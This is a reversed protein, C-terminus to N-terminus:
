KITIPIIIFSLIFILGAIVALLKRGIGLQENEDLVPPHKLGIFWGIIVWVIWYPWLLTLLVIFGFFIKYIIKAKNGFLAYIIHGGDLQGMPFLNLSTAVLAFWAAFAVPHAILDTGNSYKGFIIFYMIKWILPEGFYIGSSSIQEIFFSNKIGYYLIPITVIFGSLPGAIGIDFIVKKNPITGRIKIIAGMTGFAAPIPILYPLTAKINYHRCAIYHGLEHALLFILLAISYKLSDKLILKNQINQIFLHYYYKFISINDSNSLQTYVITGKAIYYNYSWEVLGMITTTFFTIILLIFNVLPKKLYNCLTEKNM